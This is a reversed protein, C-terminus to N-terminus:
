QTCLLVPSWNDRILRLKCFIDLENKEDDYIRRYGAATDRVQPSSLRMFTNIKKEVGISTFYRGDPLDKPLQSLLIKADINDPECYLTFHLNRRLYDHGPYLKTEDPLKMLINTVTDYLTPAHGGYGCNGVGAGFLTDGSILFPVDDEEGLLGIHTMTHGPIFLVKLLVNRGIMITDGPLVMHDIHEIFGAAAKHAYIKADTNEALQHNRGAHDWHEHTNIIKTITLGLQTATQQALTVDFPDIAAAEGTEQCYILYNIHNYQNNLAIPHVPM